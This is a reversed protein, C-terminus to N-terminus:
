LNMKIQILTQCLYLSKIISNRDRYAVHLCNVKFAFVTIFFAEIM